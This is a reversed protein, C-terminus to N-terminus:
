SLICPIQLLTLRLYEIERDVLSSRGSNLLYGVVLVQLLLDEVEIGM